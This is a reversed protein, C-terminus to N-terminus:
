VSSDSQLDSSATFMDLAQLAIAGTSSLNQSVAADESLLSNQLAPLLRGHNTKWTNMLERATGLEDASANGALIKDILLSFKRAAISEPPVSDPLGNL